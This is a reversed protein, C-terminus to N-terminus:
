VSQAIVVESMNDTVTLVNIFESEAKRDRIIKLVSIALYNLQGALTEM